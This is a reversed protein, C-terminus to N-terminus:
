DLTLYVPKYEGSVGATLWALACIPMDVDLTSNISSLAGATAGMTLMSAVAWTGAALAIAVGGTQAWYYYAETVDLLPIGIPFSEETTSQVTAMWPSQVLTFDSSTTLAVKVGQELIIDISTGAAVASSSKIPYAHGEGTNDNIHLYGGAFYDEAVTTSVVTLTIQTTGIAAAVATQNMWDADVAAAQGMKGPSLAGAGAKAYRFKRGDQTIRLTGIEEKKSSSISYLSQSFGSRKMPKNASM